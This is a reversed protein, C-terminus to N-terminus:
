FKQNDFGSKAVPVTIINFGYNTAQHCTNCTSTLVAFSSNFAHLDHQKIAQDVADMEPYIMPVANAEPTGHHFKQIRKFGGTLLHSEYKALEWNKNEGALWLKYHHPQIINSMLEGTGPVYANKAKAQLSDIKDLLRKNSSEQNCGILAAMSGLVITIIFFIRKM